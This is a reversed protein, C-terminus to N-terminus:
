KGFLIQTLAPIFPGFITMYQAASAIFSQYAASFGNSCQTKELEDLRALIDARAQEDGVGDAAERLQTFLQDGSVTTVNISSDTSNMNVRSNHGYIHFNQTVNTGILRSPESRGGKEIEDILLPTLTSRLPNQFTAAESRQLYGQETLLWVNREIDEFSVGLYDLDEVCDFDVFLHAARKPRCKFGLCYASFKIFGRITEDDEREQPQFDPMGMLLEHYRTPDVPLEFLFRGADFARRLVNLCVTQVRKDYNEICARDTGAVFISVKRVGRNKLRDEVKFHYLTGDRGDADGVRLYEADFCEGSLTVLTTKTQEPM